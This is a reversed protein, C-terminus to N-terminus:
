GLGAAKSGTFLSLHHGHSVPSLPASGYTGWVGGVTGPAGAGPGWSGSLRLRTLVRGQLPGGRGEQLSCGSEWVAATLGGRHSGRLSKSSLSVARELESVAAWGATEGAGCHQCGPGAGPGGEAGRTAEADRRLFM